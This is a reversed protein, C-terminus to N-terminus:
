WEWEMAVWKAADDAFPDLPDVPADLEPLPDITSRAIEALEALQSESLVSNKQAERLRNALALEPGYLRPIHGLARIEAMVTDVREAARVQAPSDTAALEALEALQSESLLSYRRASRLRQALASDAGHSRPIHGLARIDAMLTNM